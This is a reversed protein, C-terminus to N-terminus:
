RSSKKTHVAMKVWWPGVDDFMNDVTITFNGDYDNIERNCDIPINTPSVRGNSVVLNFRAQFKPEYTGIPTVGQIPSPLWTNISLSLECNALKPNTFEGDLLDIKIPYHQKNGASIYDLPTILGGNNPRSWHLPTYEWYDIAKVDEDTSLIAEM